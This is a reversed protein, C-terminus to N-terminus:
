ILRFEKCLEYYVGEIIDKREKSTLIKSLPVWKLKPYKKEIPSAGKFNLKWDKFFSFISELEKIKKAKTLKDYVGMEENHLFHKYTENKVGNAWGRYVRLYEDHLLESNKITDCHAIFFFQGRYSSNDRIADKEWNKKAVDPWVYTHTKSSKKEVIKVLDEDELERVNSYGGKTRMVSNVVKTVFNSKNSISLHSLCGGDVQRDYIENAIRRVLVKIDDNTAKHSLKSKERQYKSEVQFSIDDEGMPDGDEVIRNAASAVAAYDDESLVKGVPLIIINFWSKIMKFVDRCVKIRHKGTILYYCTNGNKDEQQLLFPLAKDRYNFGQNKFWKIVKKIRPKEINKLRIQLDKIDDFFVERTAYKSGKLEPCDAILWKCYQSQADMFFESDLSPYHNIMPQSKIQSNYQKKAKKHSVTSVSM